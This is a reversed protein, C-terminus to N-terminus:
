WSKNPVELNIPNYVRKRLYMPMDGYQVSLAVDTLIGNPAQWALSLYRAQLPKVM